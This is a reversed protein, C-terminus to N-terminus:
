WYICTLKLIMMLHGKQAKCLLASLSAHPGLAKIHLAVHRLKLNYTLLTQGMLEIKPAVLTIANMVWTFQMSQTLM